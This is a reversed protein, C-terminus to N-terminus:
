MALLSNLLFHLCFSMAAAAPIMEQMKQLLAMERQQAAADREADRRGQWSQLKHLLQDEPAVEPPVEPPAEEPPVEPLQPSEPPTQPLDAGPEQGPTDVPPTEPTEPDPM